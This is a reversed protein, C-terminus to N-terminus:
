LLRADPEIQEVVLRRQAEILALSAAADADRHSDTTRQHESSTAAFM